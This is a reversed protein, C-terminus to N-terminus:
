GNVLKFSWLCLWTKCLNLYAQLPKLHHKHAGMQDKLIYDSSDLIVLAKGQCKVFIIPSILKGL